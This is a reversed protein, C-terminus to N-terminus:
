ILLYSLFLTQSLIIVSAFFSMLENLSDTVMLVNGGSTVALRDTERYTDWLKFDSNVKKIIGYDLQKKLGVASM